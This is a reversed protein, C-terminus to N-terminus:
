SFFHSDSSSLSVLIHWTIHDSSRPQRPVGAGHPSEDEEGGEVLEEERYVHLAAGDNQYRGCYNSASFLTLCGGDLDYCYGPLVCEHARILLHLQNRKLFERIFEASSRLAIALVFCFLFDSRFFIWSFASGHGNDLAMSKLETNVRQLSLYICM